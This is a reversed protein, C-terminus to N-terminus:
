ITRSKIKNIFLPNFCDYMKSCNKFTLVLLDQFAIGNMNVFKYYYGKKTEILIQPLAKTITILLSFLYNRYHQLKVSLSLPGHIKSVCTM